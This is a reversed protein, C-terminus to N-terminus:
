EWQLYNKQQINKNDRLLVESALKIHKYFSDNMICIASYLTVCIFLNLSNKHILETIGKKIQTQSAYKACSTYELKWKSTVLKSCKKCCASYIHWVHFIQKTKREKEQILYRPSIKPHHTILNYLPLSGEKSSEATACTKRTRVSSCWPLAGGGDM